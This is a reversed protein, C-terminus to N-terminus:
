LASSGQSVSSSKVASESALLLEPSSSAAASVDSRIFRHKGASSLPIAEVERVELSVEGPALAEVQERAARVARARESDKGGDPVVLLTISGPATQHFQFNRIGETGYMLHTFFEGHVVRGGPLIFNDSIRAVKLSMLPFGSGCECEGALLGGCDENRYRVFPMTYNWLSTVLFPAAEEESAGEADSKDLELVVFDANVHMRGRRCEAAINQVESSGYCDYVHCGFVRAIVERQQPYLKEATTFVGRLPPLRRGTQEIHEAFRAITSAYGLAATPKLTRWRKLWREMEDAGSHFPDFQYMRRLQQRLEFEWRSMRDLRENGGWFFAVMEGPRWGSQQMNRFTGADSADMYARERYFALPVGTSGGSFHPQLSEIPVDDRLMERGRERIIDKTLVPLAAFDELTRIDRSQIGLKRFLERYYPVRAEAHALLASLRRMQGARVEEPSRRPADEIERLVDLARSGRLLLATKLLLGGFM